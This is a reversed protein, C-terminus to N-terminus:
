KITKDNKIKGNNISSENNTTETKKIPNNFKNILHNAHSLFDIGGNVNDKLTTDICKSILNIENQNFKYMFETTM